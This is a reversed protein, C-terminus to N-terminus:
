FTYTYRSQGKWKGPLRNAAYGRWAPKHLEATRVRASEGLEDASPLQGEFVSMDHIVGNQPKAARLVDGLLPVAGRRPSGRLAM